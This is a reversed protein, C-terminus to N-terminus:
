PGLQLRYFQAASNNNTDMLTVPMTAPNVKVQQADWEAAIAEAMTRTPVVLPAKAPTKVSRGDLTVTFGGECADVRAEKWFRKAAWGSM